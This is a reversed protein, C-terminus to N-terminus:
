NYKSTTGKKTEKDKINPNKGLVIQIRERQEGTESDREAFDSLEKVQEIQPLSRLLEALPSPENLFIRILPNPTEPLLDTTKVEPLSELCSILDMIKEIDLPPLIEVELWPIHNLLVGKESPTLAPVATETPKEKVASSSEQNFRALPEFKSGLSLVQQKIGDIDAILEGQLKQTLTAVEVRITNLHEERILKAQRQAEAKIALAEKEAAVKAEAKKAEIIQKSEQEAQVRIKDGEARAQETSKKMMVQSLNNAEIVTKEALETLAAMHEQRKILADRQTILEQVYSRVEEEALGFKIKKFEREGVKVVDDNSASENSGKDNNNRNNDHRQM